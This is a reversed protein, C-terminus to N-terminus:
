SYNKICNKVSTELIRIRDNKLHSYSKLSFLERVYYYKAVKWVPTPSSKFSNAGLPIWNKGEITAGIESLSRISLLCIGKWTDGKSFPCYINWTYWHM